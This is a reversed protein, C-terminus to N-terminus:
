THPNWNKIDRMAFARVAKKETDWAYLLWQPQQHFETSGFEIKIPSVIRDSIEGRYNKYTFTVVSM